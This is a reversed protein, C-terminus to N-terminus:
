FKGGILQIDAKVEQRLPGAIQANEYAVSAPLIRIIQKEEIIHITYLQAKVNIHVLDAKAFLPGKFSLQSTGVKYRYRRCISSCSKLPFSIGKFYFIPSVLTGGM